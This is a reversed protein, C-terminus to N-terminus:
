YCGCSTQKIYDSQKKGAKPSPSLVSLVRPQSGVLPARKDPVALQLFKLEPGAARLEPKLAEVYDVPDKIVEGVHPRSHFLEVIQRIDDSWM